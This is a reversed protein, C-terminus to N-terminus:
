CLVQAVVEPLEALASIKPTPESITGFGYAAHIFPLGAETTAEFDGQIDGVYVAQQLHNREV